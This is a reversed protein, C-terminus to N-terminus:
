VEMLEKEKHSTQQDIKSIYEDTLKQIKTEATKEDDESLAKDKKLIKLNEMAKRRHNRIEIKMDEAMKHVQKALEKRREETLPPFALRIAKGDNIPTIGLNAKLIAKEIEALTGVDWPKIELTRADPIVVSAVQNVPMQSGYYDVRVADLIAASARGTRVTVFERKLAEIGREMKEKAEQHIVEPTNASM